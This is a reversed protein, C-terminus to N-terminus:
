ALLKRLALLLPGAQTILVGPIICIQATLTRELGDLIDTPITVVNTPVGAQFAEEAAKQVISAQFERTYEQSVVVFPRDKPLASLTQLLQGLDFESARITGKKRTKKKM